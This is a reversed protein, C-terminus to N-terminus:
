GERSLKFDPIALYFLGIALPLCYGVIDANYNIQQMWSLFYDMSLFGAMFIYAFIGLALGIYCYVKKQQYNESTERCHSLLIILGYTILGALILHIMVWLLAVGKAVWLVHISRNFLTHVKEPTPFSIIKHALAVNREYQGIDTLVNIWERCGCVLVLLLQSLRFLKISRM